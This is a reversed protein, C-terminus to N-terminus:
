SDRIPRFGAVAVCARAYLNIVTPPQIDFSSNMQVVYGFVHWMMGMHKTCASVKDKLLIELLTM